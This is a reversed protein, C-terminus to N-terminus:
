AGFKLSSAGLRSKIPACAQVPRPLEQKAGKFTLTLTDIGFVYRRCLLTWRARGKIIPRSEIGVDGNLSKFSLTIISGDEPTNGFIDKIHDTEIVLRDFVPDYVVQSPIAGVDGSTVFVSVAKSVLRDTKATFIQDGSIEGAPILFRALGRTTTATRTKEVGAGAHILTVELGNRFSLGVGSRVEVDVFITGKPEVTEPGAYVTISGARNDMLRGLSNAPAVQASLKPAFCIALGMVGLLTMMQIKSKYLIRM